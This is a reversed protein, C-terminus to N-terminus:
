EIYGEIRVTTSLNSQLIMEISTTKSLTYSTENVTITHSTNPNSFAQSSLTSVSQNYIKGVLKIKKGSIVCDGLYNKGTTLAIKPLNIDSAIEFSDVLGYVGYAEFVMETPKKEFTYGNIISYEFTVTGSLARTTKSLTVKSCKVNTFNKYRFIRDSLVELFDMTLKDGVFEIECGYVLREIRYGKDLTCVTEQAIVRPLELFGCVEASPVRESTYKEYIKVGMEEFIGSLIKKLGSKIVM